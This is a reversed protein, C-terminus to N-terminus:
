TLDGSVRWSINGNGTDCKGWVTENPGVMGGIFFEVKNDNGIAFSWLIAHAEDQGGVGIWVNVNGNAANCIIFNSVLLTPTNPITFLQAFATTLVGSQVYRAM